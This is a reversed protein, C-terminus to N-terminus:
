TPASRWTCSGTAAVDNQSVVEIEDPDVFVPRRLALPQALPGVEFIALKAQALIADLRDRLEEGAEKGASGLADASRLLQRKRERGAAPKETVVETLFQDPLLPLVLFLTEVAKELNETVLNKM